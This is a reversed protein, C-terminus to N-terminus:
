VGGRRDKCLIASLTMLLANNMKNNVLITPYLDSGLSFFILHILTFSSFTSSAQSINTTCCPAQSDYTHLTLRSGFLDRWASPVSAACASRAAAIGGICRQPWSALILLQFEQERLSLAQQLTSNAALPLLAPARKNSM